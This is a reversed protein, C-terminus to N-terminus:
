EMQVNQGNEHEHRLVSLDNLCREGEHQQIYELADARMNRLCSVDVTYYPCNKKCDRLYPNKNCETLGKILDVVSKM